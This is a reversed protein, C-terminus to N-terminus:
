GMGPFIGSKQNNKVHGTGLKVKNEDWQRSELIRSFKAGNQRM